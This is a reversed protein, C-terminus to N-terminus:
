RSDAVIGLVDALREVDEDGLTVDDPVTSGSSASAGCVDENDGVSLRLYHRKM